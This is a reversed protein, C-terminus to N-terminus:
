IVYKDTPTSTREKNKEYAGFSELQERLQKDEETEPVETSGMRKNVHREYKEFVNNIEQNVTLLEVSIQIYGAIRVNCVHLM